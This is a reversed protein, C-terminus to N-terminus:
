KKPGFSIILGVLVTTQQRANALGDRRDFFPVNSADRRAEFRTVAWNNLKYEATGTWATLRQATGSTIGNRDNYWDFRPSFALKDTAQFRGAMSIGQFAGRQGTLLKETGYDYNVVFQTKDNAKVSVVTDIFNRWGQTTGIKEPGVYYNNAITVKGLAFSNTFGLTKGGNLDDVNNWGNILQFGTTWTKNVPAAVRAGFHYYPGLAYLLSRSYNWALNNETLEAGASTYFKGFDVQVGKWSAPKFSVYAQPIHRMVSNGLGLETAHLTNFARGGGLDFRFGVPGSTSEVALRAMNLAFRDAQTDFNRIAQFASAPRNNNYSYYGDVVGHVDVKGLSFPSKASGSGTQAWCSLAAVLMGGSLL